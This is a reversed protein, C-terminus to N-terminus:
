QDSRKWHKHATPTTMEAFARVISERGFRLGSELDCSERNEIPGRTLLKLKLAEQGQIGGVRIFDLGIHLRARDAQLAVGWNAAISEPTHEDLSLTPFSACPVVAPWDAPTDWLDGKPIHNIYVVEWQNFTLPKMGTSVSFSKFQELCELFRPLLVKFRPYEDETEETEHRRWNYVFRTRQVQLMHDEGNNIIQIRNPQGGAAVRFRPLPQWVRDSGFHEFTEGVETDRGCAGM